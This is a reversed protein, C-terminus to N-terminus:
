SFLKGVVDAKEVNSCSFKVGQIAEYTSFADPEGYKNTCPPPPKNPFICEM